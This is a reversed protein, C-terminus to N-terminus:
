LLRLLRTRIGERTRGDPACTLARELAEVAKRRFGKELYLEALSCLAAFHSPRLEVAKEYESMARFADRAERLARGLAFAGLAAVWLKLAAVVGLSKWFPLVYSPAAFPSFVASQANALFPRGGMIAPNWLPASPLRERAYQTFPQFQAVADAQEGDAGFPRVGAPREAHWPAPEWAYDSPSLTRGPLLGPGTFLLAVAALVLATALHPRRTV